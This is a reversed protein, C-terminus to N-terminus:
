IGYLRIYFTSHTTLYFMEKRGVSLLACVMQPASAPILFQETPGGHPISGVVWQVMLPREVM